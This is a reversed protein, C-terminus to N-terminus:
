RAVPAALAEHLGFGDDLLILGTVGALALFGPAQRLRWAMWFLATALAWKLYGYFNALSLPKEVDILPPIGTSHEFAVSIGWLGHAGIFAADLGFLATAFRHRDVFTGAIM